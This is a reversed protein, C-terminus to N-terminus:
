VKLDECMYKSTRAANLLAAFVRENYNPVGGVEDGYGAFVSSLLCLVVFLKIM